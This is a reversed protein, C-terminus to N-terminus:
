PPTAGGLAGIVLWAAALATRRSAEDSSGGLHPSLILGPCDCLPSDAPLPETEFVDLAAARLQGADLADILAAEDILAGRATNVLIAGPKMRSLLARDLRPHVGPVAHLSVADSLALLTEVDPQPTVGDAAMDAPDAHASVAMVRMDLGRAMGALLRATHGYGILGLTRGCLEFPRATDRFGFAGARVARDAAPVLRACALMLALAHEAVSRANTGPTNLVAIGRAAAAERDIADTGTGHSAIVRLRPAAAIAEASLGLNRTIVGRAMALHPRVAAALVPAQAQHVRFGARRLLAIGAGHIPQVVVVDSM